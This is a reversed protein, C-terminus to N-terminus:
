ASLCIRHAAPLEDWGTYTNYNTGIEPAGTLLNFNVNNTSNKDGRPTNLEYRM